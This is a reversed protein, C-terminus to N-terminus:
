KEVEKFYGSREGLDIERIHADKMELIAYWLQDDILTPANFVGIEEKIKDQKQKLVRAIHYVKNITPDIM